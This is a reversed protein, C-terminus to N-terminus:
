CRMQEPYRRRLAVLVASHQCAVPLGWLARLCYGRCPSAVGLLTARGEGAPLGLWAMEPRGAGGRATATTGLVGILYVGRGAWVARGPETRHLPRREGRGRTATAVM